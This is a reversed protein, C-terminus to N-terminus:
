AAFLYLCFRRTGLFGLKSNNSEGAPNASAHTLARVLIGADKVELGQRAAFARVSQEARQASAEGSGGAKPTPEAPDKGKGRGRGKGKEM